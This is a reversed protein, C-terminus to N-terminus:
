PTTLDRRCWALAVWMLGCLLSAGSGCGALQWVGLGPLLPTACPMATLLAHCDVLCPLAWIPGLCASFLYLCLWVLVCRGRTLVSDCRAVCASSATAAPLQLYLHADCCDPTSLRARLFEPLVAPGLRQQRQVLPVPWCRRFRCPLFLSHQVCYGRAGGAFGAVVFTRLLAPLLM